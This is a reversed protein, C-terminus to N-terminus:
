PTLHKEFFETIVRTYEELFPGKDSCLNLHKAEPFHYTSFGFSQHLSQLAADQQDPPVIPDLGSSIALVPAEIPHGHTVPWAPIRLRDLIARTFEEGIHNKAQPDVWRFFASEFFTFPRFPGLAIKRLQDDIFRRITLPIDQAPGNEFVMAKVHGDIFPFALTGAFTSLSLTLVGLPLHPARTRIAKVSSVVDDLIQDGMGLKFEHHDSKGSGALDITFVEFGARALFLVRRWMHGGHYGVPHYIAVARGNRQGKPTYHRAFLNLESKETRIFFDERDAITTLAEPDPKIKQFPKPAFFFKALFRGTPGYVLKRLTTVRLTQEPCTLEPGQKLFGAEPPYPLPAGQTAQSALWLTALVYLNLVRM